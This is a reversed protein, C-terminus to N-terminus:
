GLKKRHLARSLYEAIRDKALLGAAFLICAAAAIVAATTYNGRQINAGIFSSTLLAPFRAATSTVFFVAPNVPLVGAIYTLVDKPTGPILFLVFMFIESKRSNLLFSFQELKKRGVLLGLLSYGLIRSIFFAAITGIFVGILSYLTGLATGYIYGGAIQVLEGPIVAIIVQLVHIGIFVAINTRGYSFLMAKFKDPNAALQTIYPAYKVAALAAASLFLLLLVINIILRTKKEKDM